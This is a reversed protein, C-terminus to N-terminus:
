KARGLLLFSYPNREENQQLQPLGSNSPHSMFDPMLSGTHLCFVTLAGTVVGSSLATCALLFIRGSSPHDPVPKISSIINWNPKSPHLSTKWPTICPFPIYSTHVAPALCSLLSVSTSLSFAAAQSLWLISHPRCCVLAWPSISIFSLDQSQLAVSGLGLFTSKWQSVAFVWRLNRSPVERRFFQLWSPILDHDEQFIFLHYLENMLLNERLSSFHSNFSCQSVAKVRLSVFTLFDSRVNPPSAHSFYVTGRRYQQHCCGRGFLIFTCVRQGLM